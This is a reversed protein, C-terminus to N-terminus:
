DLLRQQAEEEKDIYEQPVPDGFHKDIKEVSNIITSNVYNIYAKVHYGDVEMGSPEVSPEYRVQVRVGDWKGILGNKIWTWEEDKNTGYILYKDDWTIGFGWEGGYNCACYNFYPRDTKGYSINDHFNQNGYLFIALYSGEDTHHTFMIDSQWVDKRYEAIGKSDSTLSKYYITEPGNNQHERLMGENM